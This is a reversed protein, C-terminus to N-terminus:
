CSKLPRLTIRTQQIQYEPVTRMPVMQTPEYSAEVGDKTILPQTVAVMRVKNM